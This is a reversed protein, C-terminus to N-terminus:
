LHTTLNCKEFVAVDIDGCISRRYPSKVSREHLSLTETGRRSEPYTKQSCCFHSWPEQLALDYFTVSYGAARKPHEQQFGAVM